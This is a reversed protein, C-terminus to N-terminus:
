VQRRESDDDEKFFEGAVHSNIKNRTVLTVYYVRIAHRTRRDSRSYVDRERERKKKNCKPFHAM